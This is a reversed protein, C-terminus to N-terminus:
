ELALAPWTALSFPHARLGLGHGVVVQAHFQLLRIILDALLFLMYCVFHRSDLLDGGFSVVSTGVFLTQERHMVEEVAHLTMAADKQFSQSQIPRLAMPRMERDM